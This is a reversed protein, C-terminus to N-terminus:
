TPMVNIFPTAFCCNRPGELVHISKLGLLTVIPTLPHCSLFEEGSVGTKDVSKTYKIM